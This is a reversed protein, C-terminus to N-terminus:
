RTALVSSLALLRADQLAPAMLQVGVSMGSEADNGAPISIGCHGALNLAITFIDSLYMQLPDSKEGFKFAVDPTVPTLIADCQEFAAEFDKRILTRVKQARLYYADYYGSSLVYTGLLIRRKVEDGFGEGRSKFYTDVLDRGEVRAGYRMGDFRALNASAEATALIYYVAVAYRTHPLTVDVIEGGLAKVREITERISFYNRDGFGVEAAIEEISKDSSRLLSAAEAVRLQFQYQNPSYGVHNLFYRRLSSRSMGVIRCLERYDCRERFHRNIYSIVHSTRQSTQARLSSQRSFKRAIECVLTMFHGLLAFRYGLQRLEDEQRMRSLLERVWNFDEDDLHLFPYSEGSESQGQLVAQFGPLLVADLQPLLLKEPQFIVNTLSFDQSCETYAHAMGCPIIFLDGASLKRVQGACCHSASGNLILVLEVFSHKHTGTNLQLTSWFIHLPFNSSTGKVIELTKNELM